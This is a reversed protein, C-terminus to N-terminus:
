RQPQPSDLLSWVRECDDGAFQRGLVAGCDNCRYHELALVGNCQGIGILTLGERPVADCACGAVASCKDCALM